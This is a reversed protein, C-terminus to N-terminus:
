VKPIGSVICDPLGDDRELWRDLPEIPEYLLILPRLVDPAGFPTATECDRWPLALDAAM